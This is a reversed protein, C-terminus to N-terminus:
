LQMLRSNHSRDSSKFTSFFVSIKSVLKRLQVLSDLAQPKRLAKEVDPRPSQIARISMSALSYSSLLTEIRQASEHSENSRTDSKRMLDQIM